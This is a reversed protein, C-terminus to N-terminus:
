DPPTSAFQGGCCNAPIRRPLGCYRVIEDAIDTFSNMPFLVADVELDQSNKREEDPVGVCAEIRLGKIIIVDM